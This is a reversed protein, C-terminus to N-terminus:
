NVGSEFNVADLFKVLTRKRTLKAGILDNTTLLIATIASLINSVRIKPRPFQGQGNYEFGTAEIPFRSYTNGNWVLNQRLQNTGAHFRLLDGGLATADLEFLEIVASPSLKQIESALSANIETM